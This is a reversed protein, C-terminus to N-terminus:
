LSVLSHLLDVDTCSSQLRPYHTCSSCHGWLGFKAIQFDACSWLSNEPFPKWSNWMLVEGEYPSSAGELNCGNATSSRGLSASLSEWRVDMEEEKRTSVNAAKRAQCRTLKMCPILSDDDDESHYLFM